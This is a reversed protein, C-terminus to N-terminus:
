LAGIMGATAAPSALSEGLRRLVIYAPLNIDIHVALPLIVSPADNNLPHGTLVSINASYGTEPSYQPLRYADNRM